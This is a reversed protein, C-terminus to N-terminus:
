GNSVGYGTSYFNPNSIYPLTCHCFGSGGNLPNNSCGSCVDKYEMSPYRFSDFQNQNDDEVEIIIRKIRM